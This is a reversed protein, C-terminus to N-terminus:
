AVNLKNGITRFVGFKSFLLGILLSWGFFWFKNITFQTKIRVIRIKGARQLEFSDINSFQSLTSSAELKPESLPKIDDVSIIAVNSLFAPAWINPIILESLIKNYGDLVSQISSNNGHQSNEDNFIDEVFSKEVSVRLRENFYHSLNISYFHCIVSYSVLAIVIFISAMAIKLHMLKNM